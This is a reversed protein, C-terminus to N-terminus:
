VWHTGHNPNLHVITKMANFSLSSYKILIKNLLSKGEKQYYHNSIVIVAESTQALTVIGSDAIDFTPFCKM